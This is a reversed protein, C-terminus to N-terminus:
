DKGKGIHFLLGASLFFSPGSKNGQPLIQGYGGEFIFKQHKQINAQAGINILGIFTNPPTLTDQNLTPQNGFIANGPYGQAYGLRLSAYYNWFENKTTGVTFAVDGNISKGDSDDAVGIGLEIRQNESLQYRSAIKTSLLLGENRKAGVWDMGLDFKDSLGYKYRAFWGQAGSHAGEFLAVATGVGVAVESSSEPTTQPGGYTLLPSPPAFSVCSCSLLALFLYAITPTKM